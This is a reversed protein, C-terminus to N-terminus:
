SGPSSCKIGCGQFMSQVMLLAKPLFYLLYRTSIFPVLLLLIVGIEAYLFGAILTWHISM